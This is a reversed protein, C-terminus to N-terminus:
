ASFEQGLRTLVTLDKVSEAANRADWKVQSQKRMLDQALNRIPKALRVFGGAEADGAVEAVRRALPADARRLGITLVEGLIGLLDSLMASVPEASASRLGTEPVASKGKFPSVLPQIMERSGGVERIVATPYIELGNGSLRVGGAVFRISHPTKTVAELLAEAGERGRDSYAHVLRAEAGTADVLTAYIMQRTIDFNAHDVKAVQLVFFNDAVRRPRLASPPMANLRARLEDFSVVRVPEKLQEWQFAQPNVTSRARATGLRRAPSRKGGSLLMVGQGLSALSVSQVAAAQGLKLYTPPLKGAETPNPFEKSVAVVMGSDQDQLFASAIAGKRLAQVGCGLGVYRGTGLEVVRDDRTGRVMQQPVSSPQSRVADCRILLEGLLEVATEPTFLADHSTYRQFQDAIGAVNDAPWLLNGSTCAESMRTLTSAFHSPAASFGHELLEVTFNEVDSLLTEPVPFELSGTSVLGAQRDATLERFAWVALATMEPALHPACDVHTYRPDGPVLFRVNISLGHLLATPKPARVLEALIGTEFHQRAKELAQRSFHEKLLTDSITGPDWSEQTTKPTAAPDNTTGQYKFITRVLHRCMTASPCTCRGERVTKGGPLVCEANDSWKAVLTGDPQENLESTLEGSDVEKRARNVTGRNTFTVLDEFTIALLDQRPM